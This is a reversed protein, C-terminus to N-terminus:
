RSNYVCQPVSILRDKNKTFLAKKEDVVFYNSLSVTYGTLATSFGFAAVGIHRLKSNIHFTQM